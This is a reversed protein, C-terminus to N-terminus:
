IDLLKQAKQLAPQYGCSARELAIEIHGKAKTIDKSDLYFEALFNHIDAQKLRYSCRDAIELAENALKIADEKHGQAFRLKALELLIDPELEVLNIRRDRILADNLHSEAEKLEGKVLFAAGLLWEAWIIDRELKEVDALKRARLAHKLAKDADEMLLARLARHSWGVGQQQDTGEIKTFLELGKALEKESESFRGSYALLRGLEQHGWAEWFEDKIEQCLDISRRLNSEAAELEGIPIQASGALNGLGIALNEKDWAKERLKNHMEFLPVAKQPQGSLSYSNALSNYLWAQKSDEKLKCKKYESDDFLARDIEIILQYAGFQFHLPDPVLREILLSYAEDYRGSSVTHHYLEIVTALDDLSEIKEPEPLSEFYDRLQSHVADKKKLKDYCYSRVIPHLDYRNKEDRLLLGRDVLEILVEDFGEGFQNFIAMADYEMPNRFAALKSIFEQKDKDLSGYALDLINHEKPVLKPLPNFRTFAKIDGAYKPDKIIMGSLLRLSLPHYGFPECAEEIEHRAGKIKQRHFFQVADEKSLKDLDKYLCGAIGDLEKPYLRSTLLTKTKPIGALRQLFSGVNPDICARYDGREDEKVEDGQYPSGLGAYARLTREVGDFVLLFRNNYLLNYLTDMMDRISGIEKPNIKGQSVYQIAKILFSEFRAERDYFSWWIIGEPALGKKIIDEQLWFWTLASKGMGGIAIYAFMPHHDNKFWNTLEEREKVRGTFNAQLPYPHAFYPTPPLPFQHPKEPKLRLLDKIEELARDVRDFRYEVRECLTPIARVSKVIFEISEKQDYGADKIIVELEHKTIGKIEEEIQRIEEKPKSKLQEALSSVFTGALKVGPVGEVEAILGDLLAKLYPYAKSCNM